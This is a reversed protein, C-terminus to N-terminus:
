AALLQPAIATGRGLVYGFQINLFGLPELYRANRLPGADVSELGLDNALKMVTAKAAADDSAVFTQLAKDGIKLGTGYHQAFITNFAKVVSAGPLLSAIEEAASSEHGVQLGSFDATVPNSVDVVIKGAFDAQSAIEKAAGYPTALIVAEAESVAKRLDDGRDVVTVQHGAGGLVSALGSGINGNGIVAVKMASEKQKAAM